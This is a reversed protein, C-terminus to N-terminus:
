SPDGRLPILWPSMTIKMMMLWSCLLLLYPRVRRPSSGPYVRGGGQTIVSLSEQAVEKRFGLDMFWPCKWPSGV